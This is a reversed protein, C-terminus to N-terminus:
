RRKRKAIREVNMNPSHWNLRLANKGPTKSKWFYFTRSSKTFPLTERYVGARYKREQMWTWDNQKQNTTKQERAHTDSVEKNWEQVISTKTEWNLKWSIFHLQVSFFSVACISSFNCYHCHCHTNISKNFCLLVVIMYATCTAVNVSM